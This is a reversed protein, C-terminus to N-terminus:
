AVKNMQDPQQDAFQMIDKIVSSNQLLQIDEETLKNLIEERSLGSLYELHKKPSFRALDWAETSISAGIIKELLTKNEFFIIELEPEVLELKFNEQYVSANLYSGVFSKKEAVKQPDVSDTDLVLIISSGGMILISRALAMAYSFGSAPTFEFSHGGTTKKPLIKKLLDTDFQGETIVRISNTGTNM